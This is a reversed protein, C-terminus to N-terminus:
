NYDIKKQMMVRGQSWYILWLLSKFFEFDDKAVDVVTLKQNPVLTLQIILHGFMSLFHSM